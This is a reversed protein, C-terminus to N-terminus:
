FSRRAAATRFAASRVGPSIRSIRKWRGTPSIILEKYYADFSAQEDAQFDGEGLIRKIDKQNSRLM